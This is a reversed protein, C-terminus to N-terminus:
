MSLRWLSTGAMPSRALGLQPITSETIPDDAAAKVVSRKGVPVDWVVSCDDRHDPITVLVM